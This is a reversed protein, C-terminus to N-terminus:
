LREIDSGGREWMSKKFLYFNWFSNLKSGPGVYVMNKMSKGHITGCTINYRFVSGDGDWINPDNCVEYGDCHPRFRFDTGCTGTFRNFFTGNPCVGTKYILLGTKKDKECYAYKFCDDFGYKPDPFGFKVM